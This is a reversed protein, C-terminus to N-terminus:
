RQNNENFRSMKVSVALPAADAGYVKPLSTRMVFRIHNRLLDMLGKNHQNESSIFVETTDPDLSYVQMANLIYYAIDSIEKGSFRSAFLLNKGSFAFTYNNGAGCHLYVRQGGGPYDRFKEFLVMAECSIRSGPFTRSIFDKLGNVPSYICGVKESYDYFLGSPDSSPFITTFVSEADTESANILDVPVFCFRGTSIIIDSSFDDLIYPNDYITNEIQRLFNDESHKLRADLVLRLPTAKDKLNKLFASISDSGLHVALHWEATDTIVPRSIINDSNM